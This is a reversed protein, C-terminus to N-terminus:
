TLLREEHSNQTFKILFRFFITPMASLLRLFTLKGERQEGLVIAEKVTQEHPGRGTAASM